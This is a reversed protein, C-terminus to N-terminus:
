VVERRKIHIARQSSRRFPKTITRKVWRSSSFRMVRCGASRIFFFTIDLFPSPVSLPPSPPWLPILLHHHVRCSVKVSTEHDQASRYSIERSRGDTPDRRSVDDQARTFWPNVPVAGANRSLPLTSMSLRGASILTSERMSLYRLIFRQPAIIISRSFLSLYDLGVRFRVRLIALHPRSSLIIASNVIIKDEWSELSDYYGLYCSM